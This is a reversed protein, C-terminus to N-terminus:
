AGGDQLFNRYQGPTVGVVRKFQRHFHSQDVFGTAYATEALPQGQRLLQRARRIRVDLLYAHPPMGTAQRFVRTLHYPSLGALGALAALSIDEAYCEEIYERIVRISRPEQGVAIPQPRDDAHRGILRALIGLLGGEQELLAAPGLEIARHLQGIAQALAADHIVGAQFFPMGRPRGAIDSATRQLIDPHLYLMRYSWGAQSAPYGTHPTDPNALNISGPPAVLRGGRYEFGLAGQEIVGVAFEDHTHRAFSHSVYSARLATLDGLQPVRWLRSHEHPHKHM